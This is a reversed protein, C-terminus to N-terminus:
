LDDSDTEHCDSDPVVEDEEVLDSEGESDDDPESPNDCEELMRQIREMDKEYEDM